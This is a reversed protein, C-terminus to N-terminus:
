QLSVKFVGSNRPGLISSRREKSLLLSSLSVSINSGPMSGATSYVAAATSFPCDSALILALHFPGGFFALYFVSGSNCVSTFKLLCYVYSVACERTIQNMVQSQRGRMWLDVIPWLSALFLVSQAVLYPLFVTWMRSISPPLCGSYSPVHFPYLIPRVIKFTPLIIAFERASIVVSVAFVVLVLVRGALRGSLVYWM